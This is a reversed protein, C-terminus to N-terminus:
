RFATSQSQRTESFSSSMPMDNHLGVKEYEVTAWKSSPYSRVQLQDILMISPESQNILIIRPESQDALIISSESQSIYSRVEYSAGAELITYPACEYGSRETEPRPETNSSSSFWSFVMRGRLTLVEPSHLALRPLATESNQSNRRFLHCLNM